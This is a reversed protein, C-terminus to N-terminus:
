RRELAVVKRLFKMMDLSHGYLSGGLLACENMYM